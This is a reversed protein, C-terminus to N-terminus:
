SDDESEDKDDHEEEDDEDEDEEDEDHEDESEFEFQIVKEIQAISLGTQIAIEEITTQKDMWEIEFEFKEDSYEVEINAINNNVEVEIELDEETESESGIDEFGGMLTEDNREDVVDEVPADDFGSLADDFEDAHANFTLLVLATFISFRLTTLKCERRLDVHPSCITM